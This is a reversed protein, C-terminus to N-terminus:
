RSGRARREPLVGALRTLPGHFIADLCLLSVVFPIAWVFYEARPRSVVFSPAAVGGLRVTAFVLIAGAIALGRGQRTTRAEGLAAFGILGAVFAYFPATLRDILEARFRGALRQMTEDKPDPSLLEATSRERPRRASDDQHAFQTLD